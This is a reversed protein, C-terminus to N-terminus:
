KGEDKKLQFCKKWGTSLFMACISNKDAVKDSILLTSSINYWFTFQNNTYSVPIM